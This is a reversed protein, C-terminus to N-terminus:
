REGMRYQGAIYGCSWMRADVRKETNIYCLSREIGSENLPYHRGQVYGQRYAQVGKMRHKHQARITELTELAQERERVITRDSTFVGDEKVIRNVSKLFWCSLM